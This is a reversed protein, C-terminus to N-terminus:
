YLGGVNVSSAIIQRTWLRQSLQCRTRKTLSVSEEDTGEALPRHYVATM